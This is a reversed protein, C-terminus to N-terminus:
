VGNNNNNSNINSYTQIPDTNLQWLGDVNMSPKYNAYLSKFDSVGYIAIHRLNRMLWVFVPKTQWTVDYKFTTDSNMCHMIADFAPDSGENINSVDVAAMWEWSAADLLAHLARNLLRESMYHHVADQLYLSDIEDHTMPRDPLPQM